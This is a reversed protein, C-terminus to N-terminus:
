FYCQFIMRCMRFCCCLLCRMSLNYMVCCWMIRMLIWCSISVWWLISITFLLYSCQCQSVTTARTPPSFLLTRNRSYYFEHEKTLCFSTLSWLVFCSPLNAVFCAAVSLIIIFLFNWLAYPQFNQTFSFIIILITTSLILNV